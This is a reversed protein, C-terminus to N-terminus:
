KANCISISQITSYAVFVEHTHENHLKHNKVGVRWVHLFCLFCPWVLKERLYCFGIPQFSNFKDLRRLSLGRPTFILLGCPYFRCVCTYPNLYSARFLSTCFLEKKSRERCTQVSQQMNPLSMLEVKMQHWSICSASVVFITDQYLLGALSLM